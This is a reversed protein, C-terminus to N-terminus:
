RICLALASDSLPYPGSDDNQLAQLFSTLSKLIEVAEAGDSLPHSPAAHIHVLTQELLQSARCLKTFADVEGQM